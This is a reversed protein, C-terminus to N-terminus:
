TLSLVSSWYRVRSRRFSRSASLGCAIVVTRPTPYRRIHPPEADGSPETGRPGASQPAAEGQEGQGGGRGPDRREGDGEVDDEGSPQAALGGVQQLGSGRRHGGGHLCTRVAPDDDVFRRVIAGQVDARPDVASARGDFPRARGGSELPLGVPEGAPAASVLLGAPPVGGPEVGQRHADAVAPRAGDDDGDGEIRVAAGSAGGEGTRRDEPQQEQGPHVQEGADDDAPGQARDGLHAGPRGTPTFEAGRFSEAGAVARVLESREGGVEVFEQVSQGGYQAVFLQLCGLERVFQTGRQGADDGLGVPEGGPWPVRGPLMGGVVRDGGCGARHPLDAVGQEGLGAGAGPLGGAAASQGCRGIVQGLLVRTLM